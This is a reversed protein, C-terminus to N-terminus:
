DPVFFSRITGFYQVLRELVGPRCFGPPANGLNGDDRRSVCGSDAIHVGIFGRRRLRTMMLTMLETSLRM